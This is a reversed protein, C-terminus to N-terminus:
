PLVSRNKPKTGNSRSLAKDGWAVRFSRGGLREVQLFALRPRHVKVDM